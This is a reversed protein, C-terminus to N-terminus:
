TDMNDGERNVEVHDGAGITEEVDPWLEDFGESNKSSVCFTFFQLEQVQTLLEDSCETSLKVASEM